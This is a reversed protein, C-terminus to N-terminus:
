AVHVRVQMCCYVQRGTTGHASPEKIRDIAEFRAAPGPCGARRAGVTPNLDDTIGASGADLRRAGARLNSQMGAALLQWALDQLVAIICVSPAGEGPM